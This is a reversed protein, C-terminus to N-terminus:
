EHPSRQIRRMKPRADETHQLDELASRFWEGDDCLKIAEATNIAQAAEVLNSAALLQVLQEAGCLLRRCHEIDLIILTPKDHSTLVILGDGNVFERIQKMRRIAQTLPIHQITM